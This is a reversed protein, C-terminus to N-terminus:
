WLPSHLWLLLLFLKVGVSKQYQSTSWPTGLFSIPPCDVLHFLELDLSCLHLSFWWLLSDHDKLWNGSKLCNAFGFDRSHLSPQTVKLLSGVRIGFSISSVKSWGKGFPSTHVLIHEGWGLIMNQLALGWHSKPSPVRPLYNHNSSTM